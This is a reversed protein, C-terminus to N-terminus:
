QIVASPSQLIDDHLKNLAKTSTILSILKSRLLQHTHAHYLLFLSLM